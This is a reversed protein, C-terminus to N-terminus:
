HQPLVLTLYAAGQFIYFPVCAAEICDSPWIFICDDVDLLSCRIFPWCYYTCLLNFPIGVSKKTCQLVKFEISNCALPRPWTVRSGRGMQLEPYLYYFACKVLLQEAVDCVM